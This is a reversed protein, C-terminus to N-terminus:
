MIHAKKQIAYSNILNGKITAAIHLVRSRALTFYNM